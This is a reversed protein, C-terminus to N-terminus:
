VTDCGVLHLAFSLLPHGTRLVSFWIFTNELTKCITIQLRILVLFSLAHLVQSITIGVFEKSYNNRCIGQVHYKVECKCVVTIRFVHVTQIEPISSRQRALSVLNTYVFPKMESSMENQLSHGILQLTSYSPLSSCIMSLAAARVELPEKQNLFILMLVTHIQFSYIFFIKIPINQM